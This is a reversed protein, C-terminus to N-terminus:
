ITSPDPWRDMMLGVGREPDNYAIEEGLVTVFADSEVREVVPRLVGSLGSGLGELLLAFHGADKFEVRPLLELHEAATGNHISAVLLLLDQCSSRLAVDVLLAEVDRHRGANFLMEAYTAVVEVHGDGWPGFFDDFLAV